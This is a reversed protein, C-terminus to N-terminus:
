VVHSLLLRANKQYARLVYPFVKHNRNVWCDYPLFSIIADNGSPTECLWLNDIALDSQWIARALCPSVM